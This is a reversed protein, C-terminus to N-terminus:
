GGKNENNKLGMEVKIVREIIDRYREELKNIHNELREVGDKIYGIDRELRGEKKGDENDEDKISRRFALYAFFISSLTGMVGIISIVVNLTNM